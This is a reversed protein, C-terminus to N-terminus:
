SVLMLLSYDRWYAYLCLLVPVAMRYLCVDVCM